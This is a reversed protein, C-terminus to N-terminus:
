RFGIAYLGHRNWVELQVGENQGCRRPTVFPFSSPNREQAVAFRNDVSQLVTGCAILMQHRENAAQVVDRVPM